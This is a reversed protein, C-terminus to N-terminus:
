LNGVLDDVFGLVEIRLRFTGITRHVLAAVLGGDRYVISNSVELPFDRELAVLIEPKCGLEVVEALPHHLLADLSLAPALALKDAMHEVREIVDRSEGV